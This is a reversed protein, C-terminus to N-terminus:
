SSRERIVEQADKDERFGIFVPQRLRDDRAWESFRVQCVIQPELWHCRKMEAATLSQERKSTGSVPLKAFPCSDRVIKKFRSHLKRLLTSSFGSEVKGAFILQSGEYFGVIISGFQTRTGEPEIYGGIIFEQELFLKLKVWSGSRGGPDYASDERKGILGGLGLQRVKELLPEADNSLSASYRIVGDLNKLLKELKSKRQILPLTKLDEGDLQLLDFAYFFLPPQEEGIDHAQLLRFSSRGEADLAVIEGDLVCDQADLAALSQMIVPFKGGFDKCNRSLLRMQSGGKLALARWGDFKLEYIWDGEPPKAVLKAEMPQFFAPLAAARVTKKPKTSDTAQASTQQSHWIRDGRSLDKMTKGSLASLNDLRKSIPKMDQGGRILLWQNEGDRLRVLYWEGELKKGHLIFHLKGTALEKDPSSSLPEYIGQDWVMVTGGGYQGKPITGEFEAYAVPHDEVQVALRKEGRAYPMGKPVAWSKLTGGMELRFDYHLRTADHKQVVFRNGPAAQEDAQPETTKSFNRKRKYEQLSV